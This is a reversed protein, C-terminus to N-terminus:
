VTPGTAHRRVQEDTPNVSWLVNSVSFRSPDASPAESVVRVFGHVTTTTQWAVGLGYAAANPAAGEPALPTGATVTILPDAARHHVRTLGTADHTPSDAYQELEAYLGGANGIVKHLGDVAFAFGGVEAFAAGEAISENLYLLATSLM